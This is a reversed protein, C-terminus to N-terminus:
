QAVISNIPKEEIALQALSIEVCNRSFPELRKRGDFGNSGHRAKGTVSRTFYLIGLAMGRHQLCPLLRAYGSPNLRFGDETKWGTVHGERRLGIHMGAFAAQVQVPDVNDLAFIRDNLSAASSLGNRPPRM